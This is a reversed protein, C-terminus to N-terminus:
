SRRRGGVLSIILIGILAGIAIIIFLIGVLPLARTTNTQADRAAVQENSNNLYTYFVNVDEWTTVTANTLVGATSLTYNGSTIIIGDSNNHVITISYSRPEGTSSAGALTYGTENVYAGSENTVTNSQATTELGEHVSGFVYVLLVLLVLVAAVFVFGTLVGELGSQGKRNEKINYIKQNEM